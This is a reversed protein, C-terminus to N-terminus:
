WANGNAALEREITVSGSTRVPAQAYYERQTNIRPQAKSQTLTKLVLVLGSKLQSVTNDVTDAVDASLNNKRLDANIYNM